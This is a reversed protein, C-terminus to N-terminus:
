SDFIGDSVPLLSFPKSHAHRRPLDLFVALRSPDALDRDLYVDFLLPGDLLLLNVLLATLDPDSENSPPLYGGLESVM